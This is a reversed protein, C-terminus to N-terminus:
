FFKLYFSFVLNYFQNYIEYVRNYIEYNKSDLQYEFFVERKEEILSERVGIVYLVFFM